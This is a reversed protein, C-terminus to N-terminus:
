NTKGEVVESLQPVHLSKKEVPVQNKPIVSMTVFLVLTISREVQVTPIALVALYSLVCLFHSLLFTSTTGDARRSIPRAKLVVESVGRAGSCLVKESM